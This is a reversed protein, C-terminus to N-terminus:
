PQQEKDNQQDYRQVLGIFAEEMSPNLNEDTAVQQKLEDPTGAAIIKGRYVLGIRDCYEAEDMFHTTVMVTVGKDVMGNIHLWFERRTLPDVGSTPEDLFLIDPEHMLACALALRQKFGLPLSDPTQRLIPTFNFASIMDTIKDRQTSGQLGYVGSFFKLNQEVTLNGYLSFKQAMYGLHQRAKGSSTKLDMGLVLAKGSSPVLLGCMMKFTTSKGAGNPGLLGFIEGRKVQFNVHDTAAFDGFKKTLEQAEIVTEDHSGEVKPMIKALASESAPGGGLLDIFADEFRPEAEMMEANPQNLLSLIQRHDVDPKLILRVYKGQIVGDSVQPMTLAHQLLKRNTGTRTAVLITRGSMRQTLNQPAGSYLLKGENLLLVERCQEAEDLYSTSWLILMGDSALEHVMRWLERRSIPDVGVGPEDLLLVKPQGVLTCALGLKQKMGGSLKGALRETFRTLDTFTLLREFTQRREEGTVGRLDAYLTLNEMVTLDEYLGFKQPMYGLISHLQRDNELPDLGVVTIKGLSPKLLGALMRLLTTKGAGDPGVLGTVAGSCIETTLSAVAPRDLEPFSKEVGELTILHQVGNM